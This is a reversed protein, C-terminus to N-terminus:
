NPSKHAKLFPQLDNVVSIRSEGAETGPLFVEIRLTVSMRCVVIDSYEDCPLFVAARIHLCACYM